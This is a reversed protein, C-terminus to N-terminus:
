NDHRQRRRCELVFQYFGEAGLDDLDELIARGYRAYFGSRTPQRKKKVPNLEGLTPIPLHINYRGNLYTAAYGFVARWGNELKRIADPYGGKFEVELRVTGPPVNHGAAKADYARMFVPEKGRNALHHSYITELRGNNYITTGPQPLDALDLGAVDFCVDLRTWHIESLWDLVEGVHEIARITEFGDGTIDVYWSGWYNVKKVDVYDFRSEVVSWPLDNSLPGFRLYDINQGLIKITPSTIQVPIVHDRENPNTEM